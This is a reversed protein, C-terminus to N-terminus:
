LGNEIVFVIYTGIIGTIITGLLLGGLFAGARTAKLKPEPLTIATTAQRPEVITAAGTFVPPPTAEGEVHRNQAVYYLPSEIDAKSASTQNTM